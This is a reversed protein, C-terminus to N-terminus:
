KGVAKLSGDDHSSVPVCAPERHRVVRTACLSALMCLFLFLPQAVQVQRTHRALNEASAGLVLAIMVATGNAYDRSMERIQKAKMRARRFIPVVRRWANPESVTDRFTGHTWFSITVLCSVVLYLMWRDGGGRPWSAFVTLACLAVAMLVRGAAGCSPLLRQPPTRSISRTPLTTPM